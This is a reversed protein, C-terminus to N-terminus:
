WQGANKKAIKIFEEIRDVKHQQLRFAKYEPSAEIELEAAGVNRKDQLKMIELKKNAVISRKNELDEHEKDLKLNLKFAADIWVAPNLTKQRAVADHLFAIVEDATKEPEPM